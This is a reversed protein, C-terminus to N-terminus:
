CYQATDGLHVVIGRGKGPLLLYETLLQHNFPHPFKREQTHWRGVQRGYKGM